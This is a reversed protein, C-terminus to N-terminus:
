PGRRAGGSAWRPVVLAAATARTSSRPMREPGNAGSDILARPPTRPSEDARLVAKQGVAPGASQDDPEPAGANARAVLDDNGRVAEHRRREGDHLGAGDGDEGVDVGGVPHRSGPPQTSAATVGRVRATM